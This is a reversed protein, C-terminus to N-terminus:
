IEEAKWDEGIWIGIVEVDPYRESLIKVSKKTQRLHEEKSVPNGACDHHGVIAMGKSGHKNVSIDLRNFISQLLTEDSAEAIIKDPGPETITDVYEADFKKKMFENAPIQTRGDMCNVVACFKM